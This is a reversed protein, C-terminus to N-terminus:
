KEEKKTIGLAEQLKKIASDLNAEFNGKDSKKTIVTYKIGDPISVDTLLRTFSDKLAEAEGDNLYIVAEAFDKGKQFLDFGDSNQFFKENIALRETVNLGAKDVAYQLYMRDDADEITPVRPFLVLSPTIKYSEEDKPLISNKDKPLNFNKGDAHKKMPTIFGTNVGIPKVDM